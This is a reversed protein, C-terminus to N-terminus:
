VEVKEFKYEKAQETTWFNGYNNKIAYEYVKELESIMENDWIVEVKANTLAKTVEEESADYHDALGCLPALNNNREGPNFSLKNEEIFKTLKEINTM